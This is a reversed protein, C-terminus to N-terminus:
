LDLMNDIIAISDLSDGLIEKFVVSLLRYVGVKLASKNKIQRYLIKRTSHSPYCSAYSACILDTPSIRSYELDLNM